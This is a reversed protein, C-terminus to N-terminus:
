ILKNSLWKLKSTETKGLFNEREGLFCQQTTRPPPVGFSCVFLCAFLLLLFFGFM